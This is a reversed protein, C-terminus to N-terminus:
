SRGLKLDRARLCIADWLQYVRTKLRPLTLQAIKSAKWGLTRHIWAYKWSSRPLELDGGLTRALERAKEVIDPREPYFDFMYKQLYRIAAARSRPTDELSRLYRIHLQNSVFQSEIKADSQGIESLRAQFVSRYFTKAEPVFAINASHLLVRCFYEGDDDSLMRADWPGAAEALQRSTLWTATQMHAGTTMKRIIWETPTLDAWLPSPSFRAKEMRYFFVGWPGSLLTRPSSARQLQLSIKDPALADDADLWQIYEGQSLSFARNRATAAGQHPQTVVRVSKSAFRRAANLTKDTSGDDVIIIEKNPWTQAQASRIAEVIWREANYAPILISVLVNM